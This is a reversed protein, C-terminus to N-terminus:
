KLITFQVEINSPLIFFSFLFYENFSVSPFYNLSLFTSHLESISLHLQVKPEKGESFQSIKQTTPLFQSCGTYPSRGTSDLGMYSSDNKSVEYEQDGRRFHNRTLLLMRGVLDTTSVGATRKVERLFFLPCNYFM